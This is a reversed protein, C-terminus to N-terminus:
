YRRRALVGYSAFITALAICAAGLLVYIWGFNM